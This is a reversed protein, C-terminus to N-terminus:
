VQRGQQEVVRLVAEASLRASDRLLTDHMEEFRQRLRLRGPEDSLQQWMADALAAPTAADQLLEPVLFENALINPLGVWPQYGMHRLVAWSARMMRYAIVMPKKFL